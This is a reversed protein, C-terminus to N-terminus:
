WCRQLRLRSSVPTQGSNPGYLGLIFVKVAENSAAFIGGIFITVLAFTASRSIVAEADYLRYRLLAILLGIQLSLFAIGFSLGGLLELSSAESPARRLKAADMTLAAALFVTAPSASCRGNSRSARMAPRPRGCGPSLTAVAVAMFLLFVARYWEGQLLFLLPLLALPILITRPRM